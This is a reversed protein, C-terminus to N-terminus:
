KCKNVLANAPYENGEVIYISNESESETRKKIQDFFESFSTDHKRYQAACSM